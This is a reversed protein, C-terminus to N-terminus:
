RRLIYSNEWRNVDEENIEIKPITKKKRIIRYFIGIIFGVGIGGLHAIHGTNGTPDFLGFVGGLVWLVGAIFMPMPFGMAWVMMLPKIVVLVGLIGYVAGSAGLSSAYYNVAIINAIIGSLFFVLLFKKGGIFKELISGFLALAFLNYMLHVLGGHVFIASVFRWVEGGYYSDQNLLLFDTVIPYM